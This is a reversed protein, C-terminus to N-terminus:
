GELPGSRAMLNQAHEILLVKSRTCRRRRRGHGDVQARDELHNGVGGQHDVGVAAHSVAVRGGAGQERAARVAGGAPAGPVGVAPRHGRVLQGGGARRAALPQPAEM